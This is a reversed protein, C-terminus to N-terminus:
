LQNTREYLQIEGPRARRVSIIRIALGRYTIIASWHKEDIKGIVVRRAEGPFPLEDEIFPQDWLRQAQVFDLGHKQRNLASKEADFEFLFKM